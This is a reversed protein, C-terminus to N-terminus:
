QQVVHKVSIEVYFNRRGRVIIRILAKATMDVVALLLKVGLPRKPEDEELSVNVGFLKSEAAEVLVIPPFSANLGFPRKTKPALLIGEAADVLPVPSFM